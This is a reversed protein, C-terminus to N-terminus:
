PILLKYCMIIFYDKTLLTAYIKNDIFEIPNVNIPLYFSYLKNKDLLMYKLVDKEDGKRSLDLFFVDNENIDSVYINDGEIYDIDLEDRKAWKGSVINISDLYKYEFNNIMFKQIQIIARDGKISQSKEKPIAKTMYFYGNKDILNYIPVEFYGSFKEILNGNQDFFLTVKFQNYVQWMPITKTPDEPNPIQTEMKEAVELVTYFNGNPLVCFSYANIDIPERLQYEEIIDKIPDFSFIIEGDKSVKLFKREGNKSLYFNGEKDIGELSYFGDLNLKNKLGDKTFIKIREIDELIVEEDKTIFLIRPPEAGLWMGPGHPSGLYESKGGIEYDKDGWKIKLVVESDIDIDIPEVDIIKKPDKLSEEDIELGWPRIPKEQSVIPNEKEKNYIKYFTFLSLSIGIIILIKLFIKRKM